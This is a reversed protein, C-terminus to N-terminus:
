ANNKSDCESDYGRPRTSHTTSPPPKASGTVSRKSRANSSAPWNRLIRGARVLEVMQERFEPPYPPRTKPM